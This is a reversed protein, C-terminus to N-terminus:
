RFVAKAEELKTGTPVLRLRGDRGRRRGLRRVVVVVHGRLGHHHARPPRDGLSRLPRDGLPGLPRERLISSSRERGPPRGFPSAAGPGRRVPRRRGPRSPPRRELVGRLDPRPLVFRFRRALPVLRVESAEPRRPLGLRQLERGRAALERIRGLRPPGRRRPSERAEVRVPLESSGPNGPPGARGALRRRRRPHLDGPRENKEDRERREDDRRRAVEADEQLRRRRRRAAPQQLAAVREGRGLVLREPVVALDDHGRAVEALDELLADRRRRRPRQVRDRERRGRRIGAAAGFDRGDAEPPTDAADGRRRRRSGAAAPSRYSVRGRLYPAKTVLTNAASPAGGGGGGSGTALRRSSSSNGAPRRKWGCPMKM